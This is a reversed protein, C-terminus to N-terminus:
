RLDWEALFAAVSKAVGAADLGLSALSEGHEVLQDPIGLHCVPVVVSREALGELVAAGFGARLSHEELTVVAGCRLALARIKDLDLPKM